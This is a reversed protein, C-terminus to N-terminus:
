GADMVSEEIFIMERKPIKYYNKYWGHKSDKVSMAFILEDHYKYVPVSSYCKTRHRPVPPSPYVGEIVGVWFRKGTYLIDRDNNTLEPILDYMDIGDGVM